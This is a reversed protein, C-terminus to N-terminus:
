RKMKQKLIKDNKKTDDHFLDLYGSYDYNSNNMFYFFYLVFQGCLFSKLHQIIQRSYYIDVSPKWKKAFAIAELVPLVGYSDFYYAKNNKALLLGVWHTGGTELDGINIVYAGTKPVNKPLEGKMFIGNLPIKLYKAFSNLQLNSTGDLTDRSFFNM